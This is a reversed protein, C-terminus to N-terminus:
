IRLIEDASLKEAKKREGCHCMSAPTGFKKSGILYAYYLCQVPTRKAKCACSPHGKVKMTAIMGETLGMEQLMDREKITM